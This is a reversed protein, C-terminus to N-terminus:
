ETEKVVVIQHTTPDLYLRYAYGDSDVPATAVVPPQEWGAKDGARWTLQYYENTHLPKDLTEPKGDADYGMVYDLADTADDTANFATWGASTAQCGEGCDVDNNYYLMSNNKANDLDVDGLDSLHLIAGLEKASISDEHKEAIYNLVREIEDVSISTDTELDKVLNTHDFYTTTGNVSYKVVGAEDAKREIGFAPPPCGGDCGCPDCGCKKCPDGCSRCKPKCCNNFM